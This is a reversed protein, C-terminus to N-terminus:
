TEDRMLSLLGYIGLPFAISAVPLRWTVPAGSVAKGAIAMWLATALIIYSALSALFATPRWLSRMRAIRNMATGVFVFCAFSIAFGGVLLALTRWIRLVDDGSM